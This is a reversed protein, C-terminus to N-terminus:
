TRSSNTFDGSFLAGAVCIKGNSVWNLRVIYKDALDRAGCKQSVIRTASVLLCRVVNGSVM